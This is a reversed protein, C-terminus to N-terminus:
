LLVHVSIRIFQRRRSSKDRAYHCFPWNEAGHRGELVNKLNAFNDNADRTAHRTIKVTRLLRIYLIIYLTYTTAHAHKLSGLAITM